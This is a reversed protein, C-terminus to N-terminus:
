KESGCMKIFPEETLTLTFIAADAIGDNQLQQVLQKVKELSDMPYVSAKQLSCQTYGTDSFRFYDKGSKLIFLQQM